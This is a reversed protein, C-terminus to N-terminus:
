LRRHLYGKLVAQILFLGSMWVNALGITFFFFVAPQYLLAAVIFFSIHTSPGICNWLAVTSARIAPQPAPSGRCRGKQLALYRLYIRILTKDFLHGKLGRLRALEESFILREDDEAATKGSLRRIFANRYYDSAISHLITSVVALVVLLWAGCPLHISGAYAAKTLGIGFGVYVAGSAVYDVLGDVIRGTKTGNKKLRAIMGDACDLVNSLGFLLGGALFDQPTGGALSFGAAIGALM